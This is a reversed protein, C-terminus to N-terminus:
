EAKKVRDFFWPNKMANGFGGWLRFARNQYFAPDVAVGGFGAKLM